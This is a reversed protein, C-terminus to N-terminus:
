KKKKEESETRTLDPNISINEEEKNEIKRGFKADEEYKLIVNMLRHRKNM